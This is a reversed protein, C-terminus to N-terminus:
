QNKYEQHGKSQFDSPAVVTAGIADLLKYRDFPECQSCDPKIVKSKFTDDYVKTVYFHGVSDKGLIDNRVIDIGILTEYCVLRVFKKETVFNITVKTDGNLLTVHM